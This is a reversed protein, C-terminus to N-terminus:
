SETRAGQPSLSALLCDTTTIVGRLVNEGDVVPLASIRWSLMSRAAAEVAEDPGIVHVPTSMVLRVDRRQGAVDEVDEIVALADLSADDIRVDRDSIMGVVRGHDVVPLHRVGYYRLLRRAERVSTSPSVTVPDPSMWDRVRM